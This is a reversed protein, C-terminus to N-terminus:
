DDRLQGGYAAAVSSVFAGILLSLAMFIALKAGAARAEDALRQAAVKAEKGQTVAQDIRTRAEDASVGTRSAILGALYDRDAAPLEGTMVANSVIRMAEGAAVGDDGQAPAAGPQAPRLLRDLAYPTVPGVTQVASSAASGAAGVVNGLAAGLLSVAIITALAWSLLGHATDRFFVEDRHVATWRTRLRGAVYGGLGSAIWQTIILWVVTMVGLTTASAGQGEWPSVSWFGFGTGIGLLVLSAGCAAVAGAFIAAWSVASQEPAAVAAVPPERDRLFMERSEVFESM